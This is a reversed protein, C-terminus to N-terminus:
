AEGRGFRKPFSLLFLVSPLFFCLSPFVLSSRGPRFQLYEIPWHDWWWAMAVGTVVGTGTDVSTDLEAM